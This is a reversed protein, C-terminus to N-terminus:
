KEFREMIINFLVVLWSDPKKVPIKPVQLAVWTKHGVIGDVALGQQRQFEVIAARTDPGFSGDVKLGLATQLKRVAAGTSGIRIVVHLPGGLEKTAAKVLTNARIKDAYVRAQGSGNYGTAFALLDGSRLHTALNASTVFAIFCNTQNDASHAMSQVMSHAHPYGCKAHNFGMIQYAGWSSARLAAKPQSTHAAMFQRRRETRGIKLSQRWNLASGPMHHPEFRSLVGNEDYYKGSGETIAVARMLAVNIGLQEAATEMM